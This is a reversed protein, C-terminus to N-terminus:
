GSGSGQGPGGYLAGQRVDFDVQFRELVGFKDRPHSFLGCSDNPSLQASLEKVYSPVRGWGRVKTVLGPGDQEVVILSVAPSQPIASQM